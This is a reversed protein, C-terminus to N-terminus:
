EKGLVLDVVWCGRVHPGPLWCHSLLKADDCRAQTLTDALEPLRDFATNDYIRQGLMRAKDTVWPHDLARMARSPIGVIDRLLGAQFKREELLREKATRRESPGNTLLGEWAIAQAAHRLPDAGSRYEWATGAAAALVDYSDPTGPLVPTTNGQAAALAAETAKAHAAALVAAQTERLEDLTVLGDAFREAIEVASRAKEDRLLHWTRRVCACDFLRQKRDSLNGSENLFELMKQPDTCALWEAETMAFDEPVGRDMWNVRERSVHTGNAAVLGKSADSKKWFIHIL